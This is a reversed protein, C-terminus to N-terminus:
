SCSASTRLVSTSRSILLEFDSRNTSSKKPCHSFSFSIADVSGSLFSYGSNLATSDSIMDPRDARFTESRVRLKRAITVVISSGAPSDM